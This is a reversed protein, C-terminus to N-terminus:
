FGSRSFRAGPCEPRVPEGGGGLLFFLGFVVLTRSSHSALGSEPCRYDRQTEGIRAELEERLGETQQDVSILIDEVRHKIIEELETRIFNIAAETKEASSM